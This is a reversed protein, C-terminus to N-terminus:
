RFPIDSNRTENVGIAILIGGALALLGSQVTVPITTTLGVGAIAGGVYGLQVLVIAVIAELRFSGYQGGVAGTELVTHGAVAVAGLLGLVAGASYLAGIALGELGRHLSVAGCTLGTHCGDGRLPVGGHISIWLVGVGGVAGSGLALWLSQTAAEIAFTGGLFVFFLGLVVTSCQGTQDRDHTQRRVAIAAVGAILGVVVPLSVVVAFTVPTGGAGADGHASAPTSFRGVAVPIAILWVVIRWGIRRVGRRKLVHSSWNERDHDIASEQASRATMEM